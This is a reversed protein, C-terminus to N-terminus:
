SGEAEKLGVIDQLTGALHHILTRLFLDRELPITALQLKRESSLFTRFRETHSIACCDEIMFRAFGPPPSARAVYQSPEIPAEVHGLM